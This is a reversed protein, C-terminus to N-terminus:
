PGLARLRRRGELVGLLAVAVGVSRDLLLGWGTRRVSRRAGRAAPRAPRLAGGARRLDPEPGKGEVAGGARAGRGGPARRPRGGDGHSIGDLVAENWEALLQHREAASLLPLESLALEPRAVAGALLTAFRAALRMATARDFLDAAYELAGALM